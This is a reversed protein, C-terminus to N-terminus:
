LERGDERVGHPKGGPRLGVAELNDHAAIGDADDAEDGTRSQM